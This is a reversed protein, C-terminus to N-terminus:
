NVKNLLVQHNILDNCYLTINETCAQLNKYLVNLRINADNIDDLLNLRYNVLDNISNFSIYFDKDFSKRYDINLSKIFNKLNNIKNNLKLEKKLFYQINNILKQINIEISKEPHNYNDKM